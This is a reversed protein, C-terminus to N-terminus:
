LQVKVVLWVQKSNLLRVQVNDVDSDFEKMVTGEFGFEFGIVANPKEVGVEAFAIAIEVTVIVVPVQLM